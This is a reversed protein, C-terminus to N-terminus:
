NLMGVTGVKHCRQLQLLCGSLGPARVVVAPLRMADSVPSDVSFGAVAASLFARDSDEELVPEADLGRGTM